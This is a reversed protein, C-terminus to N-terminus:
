TYKSVLVIVIMMCRDLSIELVYICVCTYIDDKRGKRIPASEQQISHKGEEGSSVSVSPWCRSPYGVAEGPRTSLRGLHSRFTYKNGSLFPAIVTTIGYYVIRFPSQPCGGRKQMESVRLPFFFSFVSHRLYKAHIYALYLSFEVAIFILLFLLSHFIVWIQM